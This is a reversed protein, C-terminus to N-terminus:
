TKELCEVLLKYQGVGWYGDGYHWQRIHQCFLYVSPMTIGMITPIYEQLLELAHLSYVIPLRNSCTIANCRLYTDDFKEFFFEM